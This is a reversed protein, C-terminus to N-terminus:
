PHIVKELSDLSLNLRLVNVRPEGLVSLTPDETCQDVLSLLSTRGSPDLQRARVIRDVQYRAAEPSIDPDLGSGSACVLDEPIAASDATAFKARRAVISDRLDSSTPGLNSGSSPLPDYTTASPRGWFYGPDTFNQGILESGVQKGGAEVISGEAQYRFFLRGVGTILLPYILGTLVTMVLLTRLAVILTRM